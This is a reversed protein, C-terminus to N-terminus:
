NREVANLPEFFEGPAFKSARLAGEPHFGPITKMLGRPSALVFCFPRRLPAKKTQEPARRNISALAVNQMPALIAKFGPTALIRRISPHYRGLHKPIAHLSEGQQWRDWMLAKDAETYCIGTRSNM